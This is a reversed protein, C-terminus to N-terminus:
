SITKTKKGHKSLRRIEVIMEIKSLKSYESVGLRSSEDRLDDVCLEDLESSDILVRKVLRRLKSLDRFKILQEKDTEDAVNYAVSFQRLNIYRDFCRLDLLETHVKNRLALLNNM